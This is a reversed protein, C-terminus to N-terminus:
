DQQNENTTETTTTETWPLVTNNVSQAQPNDSQGLMNKGLWILLTRDGSLALDLQAKRLRQRTVAKERNIIDQFNNRITDQTVGYFGAIEKVTCHISALYAIEEEPIVTKGKGKIVIRGVVVRAGLNFPYTEYSGSDDAYQHKQILAPDLSHPATGSINIM